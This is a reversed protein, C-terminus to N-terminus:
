TQPDVLAYAGRETQNSNTFDRPNALLVSSRHHRRSNTKNLPINALSKWTDVTARLEDVSASVSNPTLQSIPKIQINIKKTAYDDDSDWDSNSSTSSSSKARRAIADTALTSASTQPIGVINNAAM